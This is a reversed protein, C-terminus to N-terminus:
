PTFSPDDFSTAGGTGLYAWFGHRTQTQYTADTTSVKSIGNVRVEIATGTLHVTVVDNALPTFAVNSGLLTLTGGTKKYIGLQQSPGNIQVIYGNTGSSDLRVAPGYFDTNLTIASLRVSFVGDSAAADFHALHIGDALVANLRAANSLLRWDPATWTKAGVSTTGLSASNARNLDDAVTPVAGIAVQWVTITDGTLGQATLVHNVQIGSPVRYATAAAATSLPTATDVSWGTSPTSAQPYTVAGMTADAGRMVSVVIQGGGATVASPTAVAGATDNATSGAGGLQPSYVGRVLLASVRVSGTSNMTITINGSTSVSTGIWVSANGSAYRSSWTGGMGSIGTVVRASFTTFTLIVFDGPLPSGLASASFVYPNAVSTITSHIEAVVTGPSGAGGSAYRSSAVIGLPSRSM